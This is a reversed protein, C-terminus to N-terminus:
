SGGIDAFVVFTEGVTVVFESDAEIAENLLITNPRLFYGPRICEGVDSEKSKPRRDSMPGAPV